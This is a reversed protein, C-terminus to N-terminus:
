DHGDHEGAVVEVRQGVIAQPVFENVAREDHGRRRSQRV